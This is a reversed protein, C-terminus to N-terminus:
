RYECYGNAILPRWVGRDRECRAQETDQAALGGAGGDYGAVCGTSVLAASIAAAAVVHRVSEALREGISRSPLPIPM